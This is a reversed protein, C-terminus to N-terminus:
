GFRGALRRYLGPLAGKMAPAVALWRPVIVEAREHEIADVIAEAVRRAPIPRPFRRAYASGRREFFPTDVVGPVVLSVGVGTGTLEWHLSDAFIALGSKVAAYVSEGRVGTRGAISSVLVVHGRRRECMRPLLLRTLELPAVLDVEVLERLRDLPMDTFEGRWGIGANAVLNDVAHAARALTARGPPGALDAVVSVANTRRAVAALSASNRGSLVLRAGREALATATAAGIGSSAGTVLVSAGNLQVRTLTAAPRNPPQQDHARVDTGAV